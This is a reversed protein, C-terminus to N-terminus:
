NRAVITAEAVLSQLRSLLIRTTARIEYMTVGQDQSADLLGSLARAEIVLRETLAAYQTIVGYLQAPLDVEPTLVALYLLPIINSV